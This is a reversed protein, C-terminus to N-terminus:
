FGPLNAFLLNFRHLRKLARPPKPTHPFWLFHKCSRTHLIHSLDTLFVSIERGNNKRKKKNSKPIEADLTGASPGYNNMQEDM